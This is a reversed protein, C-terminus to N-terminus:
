DKQYSSCPEARYITNHQGPHKKVWGPISNDLHFYDIQKKLCDTNIRSLDAENLLSYVYRLTNTVPTPLDYGIIGERKSEESIVKGYLFLDRTVQMKKNVITFKKFAIQAQKLRSVTGRNLAESGLFISARPVEAEQSIQAEWAKLNEPWRGVKDSNKFTKEWVVRTASPPVSVYIDYDTTNWIKEAKWIKKRLVELELQSKESMALIDSFTKNLLSKNKAVLIIELPDSGLYAEFVALNKNPYRALDGKLKRRNSAMVIIHIQDFTDAFLKAGTGTAGELLHIDNNTTEIKSRNAIDPNAMSLYARVTGSGVLYVMNNMSPSKERNPLLNYYELMVVCIIGFAMGVIGPFGFFKVFAAFSAIPQPLHMMWQVLDKWGQHENKTNNSEDM